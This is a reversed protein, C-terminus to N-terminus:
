ARDIAPMQGLGGLMAAGTRIGLFFCEVEINENLAHNAEDDNAYPV